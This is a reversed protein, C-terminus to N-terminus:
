GCHAGTVIGAADVAVNLRDALFEMTVAQDPKLSRVKRAGADVRARELLAEDLTQGITWQAKSADCASAADAAPDATATAPPAPTPSSADPAPAPSCAALLLSCVAALTSRHLLTSAPMAFDEHAFAATDTRRAATDLGVTGNHERLLAVTVAQPSRRTAIHRAYM